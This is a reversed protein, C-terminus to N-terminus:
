SRVYSLCEEFPGHHSYRYKTQDLSVKMKMTVTMDRKDFNFVKAPNKGLHLPYNIEVVDGEKHGEFLRAPMMRSDMRTVWENGDSDVVKFVHDCMNECELDELSAFWMEILDENEDYQLGNLECIERVLARMDEKFIRHTRAVSSASNPIIFCLANVELTGNNNIKNNM